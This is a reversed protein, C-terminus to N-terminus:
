KEKFRDDLGQKIPELFYELASREGIVIEGIGSMGITLRTEPKEELYFRFLMSM